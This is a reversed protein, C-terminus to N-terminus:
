DGTATSLDDADPPDGMLLFTAWLEGAVENLEGCCRMLASVCRDRRAASDTLTSATSRFATSVRLTAIQTALRGLRKDIRVLRDVAKRVVDIDDLYEKPDQEHEHSM